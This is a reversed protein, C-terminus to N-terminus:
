KILLVHLRPLYVIQITFKSFTHTARKIKIKAISKCVVTHLAGLLAERLAKSYLKQASSKLLAKSYLETCLRYTVTLVHKISIRGCQQHSQGTITTRARRVLLQTMIPRHSSGAGLRGARPPMAFAAPSPL